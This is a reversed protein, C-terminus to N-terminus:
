SNNFSFVRIIRPQITWIGFIFFYAAIFTGIWDKFNVKGKKEVMVLLKSLFYLAYVNCIFFLLHFPTLYDIPIIGFSFFISYIMNYTICMKVRLLPVNLESSYKKNILICVSYIWLLMTFISVFMGIQITFMSEIVSSTSIALILPLIMISVIQWAPASVFFYLLKM